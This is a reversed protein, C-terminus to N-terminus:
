VIPPRPDIVIQLAVNGPEENKPLGVEGVMARVPETGAGQHLAEGVAVEHHRVRQAVIEGGGLEVFNNRVSGLEIDRVSRGRCRRGAAKFPLPFQDLKM